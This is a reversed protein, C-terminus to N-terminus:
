PDLREKTHILERQHYGTKITYMLNVLSLSNSSLIIVPRRISVVFVNPQINLGSLILGKLKLTSCGPVHFIMVSFACVEGHRGFSTHLENRPRLLRNTSDKSSIQNRILLFNLPKSSKLGCINVFSIAPFM